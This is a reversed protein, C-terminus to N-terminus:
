EYIPMPAERGGDKVGGGGGWSFFVCIVFSVCLLCLLMCGGVGVCVWVRGRPAQEMVSREGIM